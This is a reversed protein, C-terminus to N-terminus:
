APVKCASSVDVVVSPDDTLSGEITDVCGVESSWSLCDGFRSRHRDDGDSDPGKRGSGAAFILRMLIMQPSDTSEGFEGERMRAGISPMVSAGMRANWPAWFVNEWETVSNM